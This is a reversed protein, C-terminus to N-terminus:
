VDDQGVGQLAKRIRALSKLGSLTFDYSVRDFAKEMDLFLMIGKRQEGDENTYAEVLKLLATAEAIFVEPVFGKQCESVFEHVVTKMRSALIRTFIKYDTNLLTIPRYNRPDCRDGKKYLM